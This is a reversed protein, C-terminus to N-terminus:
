DESTLESPRSESVPFHRALEDGIKAVAIAIANEPHTAKFDERLDAAIREWFDQGVAQHVAGGGIVALRRKRLNVYILVSNRRPNRQLGFAGFIRRAHRLADKEIWRRSLHVRIEGSSRREAEEIAEVIVDKNSVDGSPM